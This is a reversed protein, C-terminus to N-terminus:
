SILSPTRLELQSLFHNIASTEKCNEFAFREGEEGLMECQKPNEWLYRIKEALKEVNRYPYTLANKGKRIYEQMGEAETVLCGKKLFMAQILVGHGCHADEGMLPLVMFRSHGLINIMQDSPISKKITVNKPIVLGQVNQPHVVTVLPIDPLLKMASFLTAYDRASSGIACVYNGKQIPVDRSSFKPVEMGWFIRDFKEKPIGFHRHYIDIEVESYVVLKEIYSVWQGILRSKFPSPLQPFHFSYAIHRLSTKFFASLVACRLSVSPDYTVLLDVNQRCAFRVAKLCAFLLEKQSPTETPSRVFTWDIHELPVKPAIWKWDSAFGPCCCVVRIKETM